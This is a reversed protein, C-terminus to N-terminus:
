NATVFLLLKLSQSEMPAFVSLGVSRIVARLPPQYTQHSPAPQVIFKPHENYWQMMLNCLAEVTRKEWIRWMYVINCTFLVLM